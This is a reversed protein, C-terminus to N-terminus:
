LKYFGDDAHVPLQECKTHWPIDLSKEPWELSLSNALFYPKSYISTYM